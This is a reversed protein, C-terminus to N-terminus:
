NDLLFLKLLQLINFGYIHHINSERLYTLVIKLKLLINKNIPSLVCILHNNLKYYLNFDCPLETQNELVLVGFSLCVEIIGRSLSGRSFSIAVWEM